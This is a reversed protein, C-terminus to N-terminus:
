AKINGVQQFAASKLEFLIDTVRVGQPCNEQCNYCGLCEWVMGPGLIHEQFGFKLSHMIQHPLLGIEETPNKYNVVVPCANTCTVCEYCSNFTNGQFSHYIDNRFAKRKLSLPILAKTKDQDFRAVHRDRTSVFLDPCGLHQLDDRLCFWLEQSVIGVPCRQTCNFCNTCISAGEQCRTLENFATEKQFVMSKFAALKESPLITLNPIHQFIPRVSCHQTCTACHTCADLEIAQVTAINAPLATARDMVGNILLVLPSTLIHFFKTFPLLALGIFCVLFHFYWLFNRVSSQGVVLAAPSIAKALGYSLFASSPKSHCSACNLAHLEQGKKLTALDSPLAQPFVVAFEKAWYAKLAKAEGEDSISSNETVMEQYRQYSVIKTAELFIGSLAIAFLVVLAYIDIGRTTERMVRNFLRRYGAIILGLLLIAGFCNRLFLFPNLTAVYGSFLKQSVYRDLAHMLLLSLFGYTICIHMLWRFFSERNIRRQLFIDLFWIKVLLASKRSVLTSFVGKLAQSFREGSSIGKAQDGIRCQFWRMVKYVSGFGFVILALYLSIKFFM